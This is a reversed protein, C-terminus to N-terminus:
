PGALASAVDVTFGRLLHSNATQGEKFTGHVLYKKGKLRLVTIQKEKPDVIWYESIGARAYEDRKEVLDRKRSKRDDSVVEMVLDAGKWYRKGVRDRHKDLMFVVDPERYKRQWLRVMTGAPLVLGLQQSSVFDHLLRCLYFFIWQHLTTPMPLFELRGDDYEVLRNTPLDLYESESWEGQYPYILAIDWTPEGNAQEPRSRKRKEAVTPRKM